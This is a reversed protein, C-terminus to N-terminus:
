EKALEHLLATLAMSIELPTFMERNELKGQRVLLNLVAGNVDVTACAEHRRIRERHRRCRLTSPAPNETRQPVPAARPLPWFATPKARARALM